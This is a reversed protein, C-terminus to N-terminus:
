RTSERRRKLYDELPVPPKFTPSRRIAQAPPPAAQRVEIHGITIHVDVPQRGAANRSEIERRAPPNQQTSRTAAPLDFTHPPAAREREGPDAPVNKVQRGEAPSKPGPRQPTEDADLRRLADHKEERIRFAAPADSPMNVDAECAIARKTKPAHDHVTEIEPVPRPRADAKPLQYNSDDHMLRSETTKESPPRPISQRSFIPGTETPPSEDKREAKREAEREDKRYFAAESSTQEAHMEVAAPLVYSREYRSPLVPMVGDAKRTSRAIMRDLLDSM